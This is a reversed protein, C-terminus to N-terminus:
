WCKGVPEMCASDLLAAPLFRSPAWLPRKPRRPRKPAAGPQLCTAHPNPITSHRVTWCTAPRKFINTEMSVLVWSSVHALVVNCHTFRIRNKNVQLFAETLFATLQVLAENVLLTWLKRKEFSATSFKRVSACVSSLKCWFWFQLNSGIFM